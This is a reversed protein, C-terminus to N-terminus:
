RMASSAQQFTATAGATGTAGSNVVIRAFAPAFEYNTQLSATASVVTADASNLWTMSAISVPNVPANPDDLTQQITYNVTGSADIQIAVEPLAYDDFRVWSSGASGTTGIAITSALGTSSVASTLTKYDLVSAVGGTAGPLTVVETAAQGGFTTGTLTVTVASENANVTLLVRRPQDFTAVGGSVAPGALTLSIPGAGTAAIAARASTSSAATLGAIGVSIPRM